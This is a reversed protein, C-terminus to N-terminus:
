HGRGLVPCAMSCPIGGKMAFLVGSFGVACSLVYADDEFVESLVFNLLVYTMSTIVTLAVM